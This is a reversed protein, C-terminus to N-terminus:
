KARGKNAKNKNKKNLREVEDYHDKLVVADMEPIVKLLFDLDDYSVYGMMEALSRIDTLSSPQPGHPGVQRQRNLASFFEWVWFLDPFLEPAQSTSERRKRIGEDELKNM